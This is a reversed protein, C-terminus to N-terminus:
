LTIYYLLIYSLIMISNGTISPRRQTNYSTELGFPVRCDGSCDGSPCLRAGLASCSAGCSVQCMDLLLIQIIQRTCFVCRFLLFWRILFISGFSVGRGCTALDITNDLYCCNVVIEQQSRSMTNEFFELSSAKSTEAPSGSFILLSSIGKLTIKSISIVQQADSCVEKLECTNPGM